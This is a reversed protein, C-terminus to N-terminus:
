EDIEGRLNDDKNHAMGFTKLTRWVAERRVGLSTVMNKSSSSFFQFNKEDDDFFM